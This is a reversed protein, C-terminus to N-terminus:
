NAPGPIWRCSFSTGTAADMAVALGVAMVSNDRGAPGPRSIRRLEFQQVLIWVPLSSEQRTSRPCGSNGLTALEATLTLAEGSALRGGLGPTNALYRAIAEAHRAAAPDAAVDGHSAIHQDTFANVPRADVDYRRPLAGRYEQAGGALRQSNAHAVGSVWHRGANADGHRDRLSCM